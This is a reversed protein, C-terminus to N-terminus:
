QATYGGDVMLLHGTIFSSQESALYLIADAAEQPEGHRGIPHMGLSRNIHEPDQLIQKLIPTMITAPCVANTRIGEASYALAFTQTIQKVAGKSANYPLTNARNIVSCMSGTNVITGRSEQKLMQIVAHKDCFFVGKTNISYLNDLDEETCDIPPKYMSIGANAVMIDLRGFKNVTSDVLSIVQAEKTVDCNFFVSNFGQANIEDSVKQGKDSNIDAVVVKAGEQAFSICAAEGIGSAGGTVIVVKDVFRKM